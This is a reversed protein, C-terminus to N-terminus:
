KELEITTEDRLKEGLEINWPLYEDEFLESLTFNISSFM